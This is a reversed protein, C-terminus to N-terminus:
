CPAWAGEGSVPGTTGICRRWRCAHVTAQSKASASKEQCLQGEVSLQGRTCKAFVLVRKKLLDSTWPRLTHAERYYGRGSIDRKKLFGCM